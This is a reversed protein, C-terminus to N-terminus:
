FGSILNLDETKIDDKRYKGKFIGNNKELDNTLFTMMSRKILAWGDDCEMVKPKVM